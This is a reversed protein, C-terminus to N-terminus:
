FNIQEPKSLQVNRIYTAGKTAAEIFEADDWGDTYVAPVNIFEGPEDPDEVNLTTQFDGVVVYIDQPAGLDLDITYGDATTTATGLLANEDNYFYVLTGAAVKEYTLVDEDENLDAIVAGKITVKGLPEPNTTNENDCSAFAFAAVTSLILLPKNM